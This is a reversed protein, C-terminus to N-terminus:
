PRAQIYAIWAPDPEGREAPEFIDNGEGTEEDTGQWLVTTSSFGAEDLLERLEPITWLRWQYSFARELRSGDRFKFHIHCTSLASIPDFEAQEWIYTFGNVKRKETCIDYADSGGFVDLMLMGDAALARHVSRFYDRLTERQKFIWYSFNMAIVLDLKEGPADLVNGEVLQIRRRVAEPLPDLNHERGWGLVEPDLDVAIATCDPASAAWKCAVQATGCFDERLSLAKRGRACEFTEKLFEIETDPDQVSQEYLVYPDAHDALKPKRQTRAARAM